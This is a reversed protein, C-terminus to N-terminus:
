NKADALDKILAESVKFSTEIENICLFEEDTHPKGGAPGLSDIIIPGFDAIQNGDSLGASPKYHFDPDIKKAIEEAHATYKIGEETPFLPSIFRNKTYTVKIGKEEAHAELRKILEAVEKQVEVDYYRVGLALSAHEAVINIAKGGNALGANVTIDRERSELKCFEVIWYAMEHIASKAGNVFIGGSHGEVGHFDAILGFCGKRQITRTHNISTAEYIYCYKSKEAIPRYAPRSYMSGIEEDPNFVVAINLKDLIAKDLNKVIYYMMLAGQKMDSSGLGYLKDGEIRYPNKELMGKFFVTDIHGIMMLDYSEAERNVCTLLPGVEDGIDTLTTKWGIADFKEKFFEAVEAQEKPCGRGSEINIITELDKLYEQLNFM